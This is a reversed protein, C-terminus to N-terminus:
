ATRSRKIALDWSSRPGMDVYDLFWKLYHLQGGRATVPWSKEFFQVAKSKLLFGYNPEVAKFWGHEDREIVNNAAM